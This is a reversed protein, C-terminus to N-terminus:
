GLSVIQPTTIARDEAAWSPQSPLRGEDIHGALCIMPGEPNMGFAAAALKPDMTNVLGALRTCRLM